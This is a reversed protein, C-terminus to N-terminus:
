PLSELAIVLLGAGLTKSRASYNLALPRGEFSVKKQFNERKLVESLVVSLM